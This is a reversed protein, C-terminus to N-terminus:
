QEQFFKNCINGLLFLFAVVHQPVHLARPKTLLCFLVLSLCPQLSTETFLASYLTPDFLKFLELLSQAVPTSEYKARLYSLACVLQSPSYSNSLLSPQPVHAQSQSTYIFPTSTTTERWIRFVELV